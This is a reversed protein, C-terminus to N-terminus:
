RKIFDSFTTLEYKGIHTGTPNWLLFNVSLSHGSLTDVVRNMSALVIIEHRLSDNDDCTFSAVLEASLPNFTIADLCCITDTRQYYTLISKTTLDVLFIKAPM